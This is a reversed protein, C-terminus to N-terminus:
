GLLSGDNSRDDAEYPNAERVKVSPYAEREIQKEYRKEHPRTVEVNMEFPFLMVFMVFM